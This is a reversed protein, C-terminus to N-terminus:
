GAGILRLADACVTASDRGADVRRWDAAAPRRALQRAVIGTDADSADGRRTAVRRLLEAAEAELWLGCFDAGAAHAVAEIQEREDAREHVADVVVSMGAGLAADAKRRLREYVADTVPMAYAEPPLRDTDAVRYLRKREIDSRLHLAGPARGLHPALCAAVTTKGSGSLGGIGIARLPRREMCAEAAAFYRRSREEAIAREGAALHPLSDVAVKARIAARLSMFLPLARCAAIDTEEDRQWLYRNFVSNAAARLDRQWLDMLLFALDYLADATALADDFELADFLVPQDGILAINRLHLDGHGRRVQGARGRALLIDRASAHDAAWARELRDVRAADFLAPAQRLAAANDAILRALRATAAEGDGLPANAHLAVIREAMGILLDEGLGREAVRDLTADPDFRHMRVAWDVVDGAGGLHLRGDRRVIPITDIYIEPAGPRNLRIEAECAAKRAELSSFDLYPYRVARKVKYARDGALFVVAAHTDIRRPPTDLGHTDPRALFALVEAQAGDDPVCASRPTNM